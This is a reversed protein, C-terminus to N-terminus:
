QESHEEGQLLKGPEPKPAQVPKPQPPFAKEKVPPSELVDPTKQRDSPSVVEGAPKPLSEAGKRGCLVYVQPTLDRGNYNVRGEPSIELFGLTSEMALGPVNLGQLREALDVTLPVVITQADGMPGANIDAPVVAKGHIDVGPKYEVDAAAKHDPLLRCEPAIVEAEQQALSVAPTWFLLLVFVSVFKRM